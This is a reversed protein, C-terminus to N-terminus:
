RKKIVANSLFGCLASFAIAMLAYMFEHEYLFDHIRNTLGSQAIEIKNIDKATIIGDQFLYTEVNYLGTPVNQPLRFVVKFAGNGPMHVSKQMIPYLMKTQQLRILSEEYKKRINERGQNQLYFDLHDLGLYHSSLQAYDAVDSLPVPAAYDYYSPVNKFTLSDRNLWLGFTPKKERIVVRVDPGKLVAVPIGDGRYVGFVVIEAGTFGSDIDVRDHALMVTLPTAHAAPTCLMMFLLILPFLRCMM